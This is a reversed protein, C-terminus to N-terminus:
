KSSKNPIFQRIWSGFGRPNRTQIIVPGPGRFRCVAVEGSTFTSIWGSSAKEISYQMYDPWAVLHGNDVIYEQGAELNIVHIGGYTNLFVMGNGSIKVVFFGEGSFIGQALNQMKTSVQLEAAGALFGDKQVLLSYSGDLEVDIIDGPISPALLVEGAGRRATLTQFFFSEGALMRSLGGLLGGDMKGEVDITDSMGVMADSEAKIVEGKQLNVQLLPFAGQYLISYKM